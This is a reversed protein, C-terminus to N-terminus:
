SREELILLIEHVKKVKVEGGKQLWQEGRDEGQGRPGSRERQTGDSGCPRLRCGAQRKVSSQRVVGALCSELHELPWSQLESSTCGQVLSRGTRPEAEELTFCPYHYNQEKIFMIILYCCFRLQTYLRMIPHLAGVCFM